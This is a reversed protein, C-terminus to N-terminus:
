FTENRAFLAVNSNVSAIIAIKVRFNLHIQHILSVFLNQLCLKPM